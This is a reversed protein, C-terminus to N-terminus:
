FWGKKDAGGGTVEVGRAQYGQWSIDGSLFEFFGKIMQAVKEIWDGLSKIANAFGDAAGTLDGFLGVIWNLVAGIGLSIISSFVEFLPNLATMIQGLASFLLQLIPMLPTIIQILIGIGSFSFLLQIIPALVQALSVFIPMFAQLLPMIADQLIPLFAQGLIEGFAGFMDTIMSFPELLGGIFAVIPEMVLAMAAMQPFMAGFSSALPAAFKGAQVLGQGLKGVQAMPKGLDVQQINYAKNSQFLSKLASMIADENSPKAATLAQVGGPGTLTSSPIVPLMTTFAGKLWADIDTFKQATAPSKPLAGSLINAMGVKLKMMVETNKRIAQTLANFGQSLTSMITTMNKFLTTQQGLMNVMQLTLNTLLANDPAQIVTPQNTNQSM